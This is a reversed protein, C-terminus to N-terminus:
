VSTLLSRFKTRPFDRLNGGSRIKLRCERWNKHEVLRQARLKLYTKLFVKTLASICVFPVSDYNLAAIDNLM